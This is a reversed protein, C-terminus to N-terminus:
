GKKYRITEFGESAIPLGPYTNTNTACMLRNFDTISGFGKKDHSVIEDHVSFILNYGAKILRLKAEALIDRAIGQSANETLRGPIIQLRKWKNTFPELGSFTICPRTEGWPTKKPEVKPQYYAIKRDSPLVMFLFNNQRKFTIHLCRSPIGTNVTYIACSYLDDWLNKIHHFTKRYLDFTRYVESEKAEVGYSLCTQYFREKGMGYGLGLIAVKALTRQHKSVNDYTLGPYILTAFWKYQDKDAKFLSLSHTDNALWCTVRNEIASFDSVILRFGPKAKIVPRIMASGIYMPDNYFQLFTNLNYNKVLKAVLDPNQVKNNPLNHVQFNKGGWRGTSARHYFLIDHIFGNDDVSDLLRKYKKISTRSLNQRITLVEKAKLPINNLQLTKEVTDVNLDPLNINQSRLWNLIRDRQFATEVEGNTLTKLKETQQNDYDSLLSSLNKVTEIDIPIGQENMQLTLLWLQREYGNLKAQPLHKSIAREARVDQKCYNYLDKYDLEATLYTWRTDPNAKSPKRPKSLKHILYSGRKDKQTDLNLAKGCDALHAPLSYTMAFSMTDYYQTLPIEPWGLKKVAVYKWILYEFEANWAHLQWGERICKFLADLLLINNEKRPAYLMPEGDNYAFAMCLIETSPHNAYQWAGIKTLDAESYTEFDHYIINTM